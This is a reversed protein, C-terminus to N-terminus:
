NNEEKSAEEFEENSPYEGSDLRENLQRILEDVLIENGQLVLRAGWAYGRILPQNLLVVEYPQRRQKKIKDEPTLYGGWISEDGEKHRINFKLLGNKQSAEAREELEKVNM